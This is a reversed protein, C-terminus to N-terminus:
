FLTGGYSVLNVVVNIIVYSLIVVVIGIIANTLTKKGKEAQEENGASTMWFFGGIVVFLVAIAGSILLLIQIIAAILMPVSIAGGPGRMPFLIRLSPNNLGQSVQDQASVALPVLFALPVLLYKCISKITKM